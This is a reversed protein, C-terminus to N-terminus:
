GIVVGKDIYLGAEYPLDDERVIAAFIKGASFDGTKTVTIKVWKKTIERPLWRPGVVKGTKLDALAVTWTPGAANFEGSQTDSQSFGITVSTGGATDTTARVCVPIPEMRGPKRFSTLPVAVPTITGTLAAGDISVVNDDLIM